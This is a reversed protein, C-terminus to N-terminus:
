NIGPHWADLHSTVVEGAAYGVGDSSTEGRGPLVARLM